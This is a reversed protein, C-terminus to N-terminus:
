DGGGMSKEGELLKGMLDRVKGLELPRELRDMRRPLDELGRFEEPLVDDEFKFGAEGSLAMEVAKSFKAPHATALSVHEIAKEVRAEQQQQQQQLAREICRLSAAIGIASHPDLIYGGERKETGVSTFKTGKSEDEMVPTGAYNRYASRIMEVTEEDDVRESQFDERALDLIPEDVSFGGTTKLESQWEKVRNGAAVRKAAVEDGRAYDKKVRYALYWLLREFNSSVLIDMAPSLTEKVGSEHAKAGDEKFGGQAAEGKVAKKEYNGTHWFRHLIDNANTAVVLKEIPLGMRKAFYGALVDGFNGTPVVFRVKEPTSIKGAEFLQVYAFFYYSIQALIRAWNISNVAALKHKENM